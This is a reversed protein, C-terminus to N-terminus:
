YIGSNQFSRTSGFELTYLDSLRPVIFPQPETAEDGYEQSLNKCKENSMKARAPLQQAECPHRGVTPDRDGHLALAKWLVGDDNQEQRRKVPKIVL